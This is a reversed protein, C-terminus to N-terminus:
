RLEMCHVTVAFAENGPMPGFATEVTKFGLSQYLALPPPTAALVEVALPRGKARAMAHAALQRGIGRGMRAPDVYLWAPEQGTYAVFGVVGDPGRPWTWRITLSGRRLPRRPWPFLPPPSTQVPWNWPGPAMTFRCLAERDREEYPRIIVHEM